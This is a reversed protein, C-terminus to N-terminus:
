ITSDDLVDNYFKRTNRWKLAVDINTIKKLQDDIKDLIHNASRDLNFSDDYLEPWKIAWGDQEFYHRLPIQCKHYYTFISSDKKSWKELQAHASPSATIGIWQPMEYYQAAETIAKGIFFNNKNFFTGISFCGRIPIDLIMSEPIISGAAMGFNKILHQVDNNELTIIITDSFSNFTIDVNKKLSIKLLNHFKEGLMNWKQSIDRSNHNRWFEKTGLIDIYSVLGYKQPLDDQVYERNIKKRNVDSQIWELYEPFKELYKNDIIQPDDVLVTSGRKTIRFKGRENEVNKLLLAKRLQSVAWLVDVNWKLRKVKPTKRTREDNTLKFHKAMENTVEVINHVNKNKLHTLIEKTLTPRTPFTMTIIM